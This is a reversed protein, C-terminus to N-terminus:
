KSGKGTLKGLLGASKKRGGVTRGGDDVDMADEDAEEDAQDRKHAGRTNHGPRSGPIGSGGATGDSSKSAKEAQETVAKIQQETKAERKARKEADAKVKRIEGELQELVADCRGSWAALEAVMSQVSGPALDRLPAVSTIIVTQAAPNLTATILNSYIAHTVLHELDVSSSLDLRSCLSAYSLNSAAGKEAAISLLSLLRLKLAQADSLVPLHPTTKCTEWTGWAFTQLLTWSSGYQEHGALAQINAQQLLEAFVYTNAASTAQKVLDAAARPSNASKALAIFPALANIAKTQDM